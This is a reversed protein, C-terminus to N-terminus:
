ASAAGVRVPGYWRNKGNTGLEQIWYSAKGKPARRDLFSYTRGSKGNLSAAPILKSIAVRKGAKVRFVKFGLTRSEAATRWRVLVGKDIRSAGMSRMTVASQAGGEKLCFTIHSAGQSFVLGSDSAVGGDTQGTYNYLNGGSGGKMFVAAVLAGTASFSMSGNATAGSYEITFPDGNELTGSFSGSSPVDQGLAEFKVETYGAAETLGISACNQNGEYPTPAVLAGSAGVALVAALTAVGGLVIARGFRRFRYKM